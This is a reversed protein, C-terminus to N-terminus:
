PTEKELTFAYQGPAYFDGGSDKWRDGRQYGKAEASMGRIWPTPLLIKFKGSADTKTSLYRHDDEFTIRSAHASVGFTIEAGQIGKGSADKVEGHYRFMPSDAAMIEIEMEKRGPEPALVDLADAVWRGDKGKTKLWWASEDNLHEGTFLYFRVPYIHRIEFRGEADTVGTQMFIEGGRGSHSESYLNHFSLVPIGSMPEVGEPYKLIRGKLTLGQRVQLVLSLGERPVAMYKGWENWVRSPEEPHESHM